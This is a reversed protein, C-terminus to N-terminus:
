RAPPSWSRSRRGPLCYAVPVPHDLVQAGPAAPWPTGLVDLLDRHRRRARLTRLTTAALVGLLRLGLALAAVLALVHTVDLERCGGEAVAPPVAALAEPLSRGFPALGYVIGPASCPSGAPFGSRRGSWCPASRTARRGRRPALARSVPEALLVGLLLLALATLEM